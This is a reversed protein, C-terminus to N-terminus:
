LLLKRNTFIYQKDKNLEYNAIGLDGKHNIKDISERLREEMLIIAEQIAWDYEELYIIYSRYKGEWCDIELVKKKRYYIFLRYSFSHITNRDSEIIIDKHKMQVPWIMCKECLSYLDIIPQFLKAYIGKLQRETKSEYEKCAKVKEVMDSVIFVKKM